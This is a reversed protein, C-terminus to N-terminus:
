TKQVINVQVATIPQINSGDPNSVKTPAHWGLMRNQEAAASVAASHNGDKTASIKIKQLDHLQSARTIGVTEAAEENLREIFLSVHPKNRMKWAAHNANARMKKDGSKFKKEVAAIAMAPSGTMVFEWAFNREKQSCLQEIEATSLKRLDDIPIIKKM